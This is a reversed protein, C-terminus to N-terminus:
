TAPAPNLDNLVRRYFAEMSALAEARDLPQPQSRLMSELLEPETLVRLMQRELDEPDRFRYLLGDVGHRIQEALGGIAPAITPAGTARAEQVVLGFPEVVTTAMLM